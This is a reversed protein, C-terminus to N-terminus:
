SKHTSERATLLHRRSVPAGRASDHPGHVRRQLSSSEFGRDGSMARETTAGSDLSTRRPMLCTSPHRRPQPRKRRSPPGEEMAAPGHGSDGFRKAMLAISQRLSNTAFRSRMSRACGPAAASARHGVLPTCSLPRKKPGSCPTTASESPAYLASHPAFSSRAPRRGSGKEINSRQLGAPTALRLKKANSPSHTVWNLKGGAPDAPVDDDGM